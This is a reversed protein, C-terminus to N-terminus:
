ASQRVRRGHKVPKASPARKGSRPARKGSAAVRQEMSPTYIVGRQRMDALVADLVGPM